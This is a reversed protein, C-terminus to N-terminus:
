PGEPLLAVESFEAHLATFPLPVGGVRAVVHRTRAIPAGDVRVYDNWFHAGRAWWGAIDAVYDHRRILGEADFYFTQRRCHTHLAPPFEVTLADLGGRQRHRLLRADGLSFPVAHYHTLAYGFFYLADLPTWRRWKRWGRFSARHDASRAQERGQADLLWVTGEDFRGQAGPLPYDEFTAAARATSLVFRSPLGFTYPYGKLAPLLGTLLRPVLVIRHRHWRTAGGYAACAREVVARAGAPWSGFRPSAGGASPVTM